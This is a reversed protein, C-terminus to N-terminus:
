EKEEDNDDENKVDKIYYYKIGETQLKKLSIVLPKEKLEEGTITALTNIKKAERATAITLEYISVDDKIIKDRGIRYSKKVM